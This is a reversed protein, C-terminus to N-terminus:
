GDQRKTNQKLQDSLTIQFLQVSVSLNYSNADQHVTFLIFQRVLLKFM